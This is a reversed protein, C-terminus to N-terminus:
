LLRMKNVGVMEGGDVMLVSGTMMSAMDTVAFLIVRAVDDPLGLRAAPLRDSWRKRGEDGMAALTESMGETEILTPAVTLARVGYRGLEIAITRTLGLVGHKAAIYHSSRPMGRHAETSTVNVVVGGKGASAMVRGAERCCIFVGRLNTAMSLDWESDEIDFLGGFVYEVANNVWSDVSPLETAALAALSKISDADSVDVEAPVVQYGSGALRDV